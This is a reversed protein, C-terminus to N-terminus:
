LGGGPSADSRAKGPWATSRSIRSMPPLAFNRRVSIETSSSQRRAISTAWSLKPGSVVRTLLAAAADLPAEDPSVKAELVLDRFRRERRSIVRRAQEDYVVGRVERYDEPFIEKLWSEEISTAMSLLVNVEGGRGEVKLCQMM